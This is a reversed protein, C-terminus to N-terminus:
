KHKADFVVRIRQQGAKKVEGDKTTTESGFQGNTRKQRQSEVQTMIAEMVAEHTAKVEGATLQGIGCDNVLCM